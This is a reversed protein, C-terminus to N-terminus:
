MQGQKNDLVRPFEPLDFPKIGRDKIDRNMRYRTQYNMNDVDPFRTRIGLRKEIEESYYKGTALLRLSISDLNIRLEDDSILINEKLFYIEKGDPLKACIKMGLPKYKVIKGAERKRKRAGNYIEVRFEEVKKEFSERLFDDFGSRKASERKEVVKLVKELFISKGVEDFSEIKNGVAVRLFKKYMSEEPRDAPSIVKIESPLMEGLSHTRAETTRVLRLNDKDREKGDVRDGVLAIEKHEEVLLIKVNKAQLVYETCFKITDTKARKIFARVNVEKVGAEKAVSVVIGLPVSFIKERKAGKGDVGSLMEKSM